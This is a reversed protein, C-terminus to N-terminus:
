LCLRWSCFSNNIHLSHIGSRRLSGAHISKHRENTVCKMGYKARTLNLAFARLLQGLLLMQEEGKKELAWLLYFFIVSSYQSHKIVGKTDARDRHKCDLLSSPFIEENKLAKSMPLTLEPM